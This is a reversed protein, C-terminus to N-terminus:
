LPLPRLQCDALAISSHSHKRRHSEYHLRCIGGTEPLKGAVAIHLWSSSQVRNHSCIILVLPVPRDRDHLKESAAFCSGIGRLWPQGYPLCQDLDRLDTVPGLNKKLIATTMTMTITQIPGPNERRQSRTRDQADEENGRVDKVSAVLFGIANISQHIRLGYKLDVIRCVIAPLSYNVDTLHKKGPWARITRVAAIIRVNCQM